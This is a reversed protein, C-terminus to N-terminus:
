IRELILGALKILLAFSGIILITLRVRRSKIQGPIFPNFRFALALIIILSALAIVTETMSESQCIILVAFFTFISFIYIAPKRLIRM